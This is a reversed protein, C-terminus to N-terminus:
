VFNPHLEPDPHTTDWLIRNLPHLRCPYPCVSLDIDEIVKKRRESHWIEEFSSEFINGITKKLPGCIDFDGNEQINVEFRHGLCKEYYLGNNTNSELANRFQEYKAYVEFDPTNLQETRKMESFVDEIKLNGYKERLLEPARNMIVPKISFYDVGIDRVMKAASYMQKYNLVHTAFQVGITPFKKDGRLRILNKINSIIKDFDNKGHVKSHMEKDAADLSLRIWTLNDVVAQALKEDLVSGNTFSAIEIGLQSIRDIIDLIDPHLLPEGSGVFTVAKLGFSKMESLFKLLRDKPTFPIDRNGKLNHVSCWVCNHNCFNSLGLVAHIPYTDGTELFECIRPTHYFIKSFDLRSKM